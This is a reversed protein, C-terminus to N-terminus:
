RITVPQHNEGPGGTEDGIFSVVMIYSVYQQFPHQVGDFLCVFM